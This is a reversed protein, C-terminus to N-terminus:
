VWKQCFYILEKLLYLFILNKLLASILFCVSSNLLHVYPICISIIPYGWWWWVTNDLDWNFKHLLSSSSNNLEKTGWYKEVVKESTLILNKTVWRCLVFISPLSKSTSLCRKWLVTHQLDTVLDLISIKKGRQGHSSTCFVLALVFCHGM